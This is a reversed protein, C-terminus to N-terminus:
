LAETLKTLYLYNQLYMTEAHVFLLVEIETDFVESILSLSFTDYAVAARAALCINKSGEM